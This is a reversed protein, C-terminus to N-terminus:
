YYDFVHVDERLQRKRWGHAVSAMSDTAEHTFKFFGGQAHNRSPLPV